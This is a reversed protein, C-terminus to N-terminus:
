SARMRARHLCASTGRTRHWFIQGPDTTRAGEVARELPELPDVCRSGAHVHLTRHHGPGPHVSRTRRRPLRDAVHRGSGAGAAPSVEGGGISSGTQGRARRSTWPASSSTAVRPLRGVPRRWAEPGLRHLEEGVGLVVVETAAGLGFRAMSTAPLHNTACGQAGFPLDHQRPHCPHSLGCPLHPPSM